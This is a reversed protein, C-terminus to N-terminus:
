YKGDTKEFKTAKGLSRGGKQIWNAQWKILTELDVGPKGFLATAKASNSLYVNGAEGTYSVQIELYEALRNAAYKTCVQEPGTVNFIAPPNSCQLLCLLAQSIADGQWICNFHGASLDIVEGALIKSAIDHLVGYRLDISYNLRYHCIETQWKRAAYNFMMERGMASTAYTGIPDPDVDETCGGNVPDVLPYVCGTSFVVIRSKQFHRAVYGPVLTNMVWTLDEAGSTGFKKAVMYIVNATLELDNVEDPESLDATVTEIDNKELEDKAAPDSFRAVGIIRKKIGAEKCANSELIALDVGM